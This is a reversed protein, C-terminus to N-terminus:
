ALFNDACLNYTFSSPIFEELSFMCLIIQPCFIPSQLVHVRLLHVSFFSLFRLHFPYFTLVLILNISLLPLIKILLFYHNNSLANLWNESKNRTVFKFLSVLSLPWFVTTSLYGKPCHRRVKSWIFINLNSCVMPDM